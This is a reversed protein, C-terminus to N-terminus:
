WDTSTEVKQNIENVSEKVNDIGYLGGVGFLTCFTVVCAIFFAKTSKFDRAAQAGALVALGFSIFAWYLISM